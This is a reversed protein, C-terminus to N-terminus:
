VLGQRPASLPPSDDRPPNSPARGLHHLVDRAHGARGKALLVETMLRRLAAVGPAAEIALVLIATAAELDGDAQAIRAKALRAVWPPLGANTEAEAVQTRALRFDRQALAADVALL